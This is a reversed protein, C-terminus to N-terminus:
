FDIGVGFVTRFDDRKPVNGDADAKPSENRDWYFSYDLNLLDDLVELSVVVGAHHYTNELEPVGVQASYDFTLEVDGTIDWSLDTSPTLSSNRVTADDGEPVSVFHTEQYAGGVGVSWTIEGGRLIEYGVGAGITHRHGLNQFTDRFYNYSIPTVFFGAAVLIDVYTKFNHNNVNQEGQVEGFNGLYRVDFRTRTTQRRVSLQTNFDKQDTNGSRVVLGLSLRASWLSWESRGRPLISILRERGLERVGADTRVTIVSDRMAGTGFLVGVGDFRFAFIRASRLEAVDDWDLKLLDLKDSDFELDKDRLLELSGRLWEGSVLRIWDDEDSAPAPPQWPAAYVAAAVAPGALAVLLAAYVPARLSRFNPRRGPV